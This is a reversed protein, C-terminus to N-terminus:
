FANKGSFGIIATKFIIKIDIWISWNRLYYLDHEVRHQMKEITDTEGRWGNAQAWGTIGPKVKHRLMYGSILKRYIENHAVAHPRPGVISMRGQLVNIFQPLEDLSYTRLFSGIATIRPDDKQAQIICGGDECVKMTRFKYVVIEEGNIGYRRQRFLIPGESSFKISIAIILMIPTILTLIILSFIKDEIYKLIQASPDSLKTSNMDFFPIGAIEFISMSFLQLNFVDPVLYCTIATDNLATIITKIREESRLPLAIFVIDIKEDKIYEISEAAGGLVQIKDIKKGVLSKDDDFIGRIEIGTWKNNEINRLVKTGLDGAGIIISSRINYGKKRFFRLISRISIRYGIFFIYSYISWAIFAKSKLLCFPFLLKRQIPDALILIFLNFVIISLVWAFTINKIESLLKSGRWSRYLGFVPFLILILLSSWIIMTKMLPPPIQNPFFYDIVFIMLIVIAPDILRSIIDLYSSYEKLLGAM